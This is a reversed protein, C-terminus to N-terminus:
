FPRDQEEWPKRLGKDRAIVKYCNYGACCFAGGAYHWAAGAAYLGAIPTRYQALEPTPRSGGMQSPISAIVGWNGEAGYNACNTCDVPTLPLYSIVNEWTMNPAFQQWEKIVDDAHKKKFTKWEVDTLRNAPLVFEESGLIHKGEPALSKDVQSHAWVSLSPESPLHGQERPAGNRMVVEPDKNILVLRGVRDMDANSEAAKYRPLEHVAWGYWTICTRWRELKAVRTTLEGALHEEGILRYCLTHPDLTSVVLEKAAIESGDALRIGRARGNSLLVKDVESNTFFKGGAEVFIRSLIHALSHSGGRWTGTESLIMMLRFAFGAGAGGIGPGTGTASHLLRVMAAVVAESEFLDRLLQLESRILLSPDFRDPYDRCLNQFLDELISPQGYGPPPNYIHQLLAPRLRKHFLDLLWLWTDADRQSFKAMSGATRNGDPDVTSYYICLSSHDEKFIAGRAVDYPIYEFGKEKLPFDWELPQTYYGSVASAHTNAIFGPAAEECAWGGGLEPRAEFVAVRLGGYRALYNAVVLANSGGGIVIADYSSDAM